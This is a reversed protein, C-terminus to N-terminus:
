NRKILEFVYQIKLKVKIDLNKYFNLFFEGHFILQRAM